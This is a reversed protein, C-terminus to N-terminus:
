HCERAERIEEVGIGFMDMIAIVARIAAQHMESNMDRLKRIEVAALEMDKPKFGPKLWATELRGLLEEDHRQAKMKQIERYKRVLSFERVRKHMM